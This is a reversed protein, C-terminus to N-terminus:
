QGLMTKQGTPSTFQPPPTADKPEGMTMREHATNGITETNAGSSTNPPAIPAAPPPMQGGLFNSFAVPNGMPLPPTPLNM